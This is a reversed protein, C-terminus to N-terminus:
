LKTRDTNCSWLFFADRNLIQDVAGLSRPLKRKKKLYDQHNSVICIIRFCFLITRPQNWAKLSIITGMTHHSKFYEGVTELDSYEKWFFIRIKNSSAGRSLTPDGHSVSTSKVKMLLLALHNFQWHNIPGQM